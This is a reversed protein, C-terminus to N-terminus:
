VGLRSVLGKIYAIDDALKAKTDGPGFDEFSLWGQYGVKELALMVQPWNVSGEKLAVMSHKWLKEGDASEGSEQWAANKIHVHSLYPGLLELGMQWSEHGECVMNGPDFIVGILDPDFNSVLRYTLGASPCMSGHHIEINARVGFDRALAEVKGYGDVAQEYLDNYNISGDYNPASVRISPCGMKKAAEMCRAVDDLLKYGLYTGLGIIELGADESIAKIELAKETITEIDITSKNSRWFDPKDPFVSPVSHVRWEVGSYGLSQLLAASAPIDLEPMMVTFASYKFPM